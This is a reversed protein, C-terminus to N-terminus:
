PRCLSVALMRRRADEFLEREGAAGTALEAEHNVLWDHFQTRWTRCAEPGAFDPERGVLPEDLVQVLRAADYALLCENGDSIPVDDIRHALALFATYPFRERSSGDPSNRMHVIMKELDFLMSSTMPILETIVFAGTTHNAPALEVIFAQAGFWDDVERYSWGAPLGSELFMEPRPAVINRIGGYSEATMPFRLLTREIVSEDKHVACPLDRVIDMGVGSDVPIKVRQLARDLQWPWPAARFQSLSVPYEMRESPPVWDFGLLQRKVVREPAVVAGSPRTSSWWHHNWREHELAVQAAIQKAVYRAPLVDKAREAALMRDDYRTAPDIIFTWLAEPSKAAENVRTEDPNIRNEDPESLLLLLPLALSIFSMFPIHTAAPEEATDLTHIM